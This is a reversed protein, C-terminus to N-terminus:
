KMNGTNKKIIREVQQHLLIKNPLGTLEDYYALKYLQGELKLSNEHSQDLDEYARNLNMLSTVYQDIRHYIIFYFVMATIIVYLIGKISQVIVYMETGHLLFDLIYDSTLIWSFGLFLYYIIIRITAEKSNLHQDKETKANKHLDYSKKDM